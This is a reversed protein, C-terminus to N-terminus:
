VGKPSGVFEGLNHVMVKTLEERDRLEAVEEAIELLQEKIDKADKVTLKHLKQNAVSRIKDELPFNDANIEERIEADEAVKDLIRSVKPGKSRMDDELSEFVDKFHEMLKGFDELEKM